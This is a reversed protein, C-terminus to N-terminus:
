SWARENVKELAVTTFVQDTSKVENLSKSLLDAIEREGILQAYTRATGYGAIQYHELKQAAGIMAADRVEPIVKVKTLKESERLLGEMGECKEGDM